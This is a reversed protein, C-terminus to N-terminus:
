PWSKFEGGSNKAIEKLDNEAVSGAQYATTYIKSHAISNENAIVGLARERDTFAGDSLLVVTEPRLRLAVTMAAEPETLTGPGISKIWEISLFKNMDTARSLVPVPLRHYYGSDYFIVLFKQRPTLENISRILEEKAALLKPGIMSGSCDIVYVCTSAKFSHGFVNVLGGRGTGTGAGRGSGLGMDGLGGLPVDMGGGGLSLGGLDGGTLETSDSVELELSTTEDMGSTRLDGGIEEAPEDGILDSASLETLEPAPVEPSTLEIDSIEPFGPDEVVIRVNREESGKGIGTQWSVGAFSLLLLLHLVISTTWGAIPPLRDIRNIETFQYERVPSLVIPQECAPCKANRGAYRAKFRIKKKCHPCICIQRIDEDATQKRGTNPNNKENSSTM